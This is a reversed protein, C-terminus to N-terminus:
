GNGPETQRARPGFLLRLLRRYEAERGESVEWVTTTQADSLEPAELQPTDANM